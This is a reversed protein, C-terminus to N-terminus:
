LKPNIEIAHTFNAIAQEYNNQLLMFANGMGIFDEAVKDPSPPGKREVFCPHVPKGEKNLCTLPPLAPTNEAAWSPEALLLACLVAAAARM